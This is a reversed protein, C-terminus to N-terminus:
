KHGELENIHIKYATRDFIQKARVRSFGFEDGIEQFTKGSQRM